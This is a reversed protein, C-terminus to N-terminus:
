SSHDSVIFWQGNLKKWLLSFHGQLNGAKRTLHWKGTVYASKPGLLESQLITFTLKGMAATDPYSKKYNDLTQQWGYTIGNKGIFSLSDSNLYGQMYGNLDGNNWATEQKKLVELIANIETEPPSGAENKTGDSCSIL